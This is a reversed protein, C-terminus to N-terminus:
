VGLKVLAELNESQAAILAQQAKWGDPGWIEIWKGVGVVIAESTIGAYDRLEQPLLVRNQKDPVIDSAYEFLKRRLINANLDAMSLASVKEFLPQFAEMPYVVLCKEIGSTLVLGDVLRARFKAPLTLRGKEDLTHAYKGLFM